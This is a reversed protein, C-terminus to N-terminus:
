DNRFATIPVGPKVDGDSLHIVTKGDYTSPLSKSNLGSVNPVSVLSQHEAGNDRRTKPLSKKNFIGVRSLLGSRHTSRIIIIIIILIIIIIM